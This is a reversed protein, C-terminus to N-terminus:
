EDKLSRNYNKSGYSISYGYLGWSVGSLITEVLSFSVSVLVAWIGLGVWFSIPEPEIYKWKGKKDKKM